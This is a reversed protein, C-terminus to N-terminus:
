PLLPGALELVSGLQERAVESKACGNSGAVLRRDFGRKAIGRRPELHAGGEDDAGVALDGSDVVAHRRRFGGAQPIREVVAPERADGHKGAARALQDGRRDHRRSQDAPDHERGREVAM